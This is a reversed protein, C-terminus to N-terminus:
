DERDKIYKIVDISNVMAASIDVPSFIKLFHVCGFNEGTRFVVYDGDSDYVLKDNVDEFEDPNFDMVKEHICIGYKKDKQNLWEGNNRKWYKCNICYM